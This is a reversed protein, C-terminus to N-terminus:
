RLDICQQTLICHFSQLGIISLGDVSKMLPLDVVCFNNFCRLIVEQTGQVQYYGKQGEQGLCGQHGWEQSQSGGSDCSQPNPDSEEPRDPMDHVM